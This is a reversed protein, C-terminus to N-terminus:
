IGGDAVKAHMTGDAGVLLAVERKVGLVGYRLWLIPRATIELEERIPEDGRLAAVARRAQALADGYRFGRFEPDRRAQRYPGGVRDPDLSVRLAEPMPEPQALEAELLQAVAEELGFTMSPVYPYAIHAVEDVVDICRVEISQGTGACHKCQIV